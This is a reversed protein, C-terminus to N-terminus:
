KKGKNRNLFKQNRRREYKIIEGLIEEARKQAEIINSGSSKSILTKVEGTEPQEYEEIIVCEYRDDVRRTETRREKLRWIQINKKFAM